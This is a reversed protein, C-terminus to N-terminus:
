ADALQNQMDSVSLEGSLLKPLLTDRLKSLTASERMHQIWNLILPFSITEYAALVSEVPLLTSHREVLGKNLNQQASGSAKDSLSQIARRASIFTFAKFNKRPILGCCAQNSTMEDALLCVQGATAGYMAVVTTYTPWLKASSSKLGSATIKEKTDLVIVDRVEGSSLWKIEDGWYESIKRKPTGGSEIKECLDKFSGAEWGEPIEGLESDQMASPFLEATARLKAYQEPHEAQLRALQEGAGAASADADFLSTGSIAQMAALLADEESGGAELAAIKAKIPEFDVFWSKFIAQAMQELTQNISSNLIEKENLATAAAVIRRQESWCPLRIELNQLRKTDLKGAGIGTHEVMELLRQENAKFWYYLYIEDAVQSAVVTPKVKIAKVDQNFAVDRDAIGVPVRKHLTSGRVLLLISGRGALRSGAELGKKTIKLESDSYRSGGMSSASIWPIDGDWYGSNKKSPTGGSFWETLEGLKYSIWEASM